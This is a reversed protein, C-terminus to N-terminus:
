HHDHLGHMFRTVAPYDHSLVQCIVARTTDTTDPRFAISLMTGPAPEFRYRLMPRQYLTVEERPHHAALPQLEPLWQSAPREATDTTPDPTRVTGPWALAAAALVTTLKTDFHLATQPITTGDPCVSVEGTCHDVSWLRVTAHGRCLLGGNNDPFPVSDFLQYVSPPLNLM